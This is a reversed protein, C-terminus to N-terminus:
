FIQAIIIKKGINGRFENAQSAYGFKTRVSINQNPILIDKPQKSTFAMVGGIADSGYIVSGDLFSSIENVFRFLPQNQWM